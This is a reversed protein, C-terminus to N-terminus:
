RAARESRPVDPAVQAPPWQQGHSDYFPMLAKAVLGAGGVQDNSWYIKAIEAWESAKLNDLTAIRSATAGADIYNNASRLATLLGAVIQDAFGPVKSVWGLIQQAVVKSQLGQVQPWQMRGIFGAPDAPARLVYKPVGRGLAWGVEQQCWPSASFEPHLVAVFAQMSRLADEIQEQWPQEVEMTDHAVFAHIGSVALEDAVEGIFKKHIASHSVFVRVYGPKWLASQVDGVREEVENTPEGTVISYMEILDTDSIDRISNALTSDGSQDYPSLPEYGYELLLLNTRELTWARDADALDVMRSKLEFRERRSLPM